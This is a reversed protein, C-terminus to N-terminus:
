IRNYLFYMKYYWKNYDGDNYLNHDLNHKNKAVLCRFSLNINKFFYDIIDKESSALAYGTEIIRVDLSTYMPKESDNSVEIAKLKPIAFESLKLLLELAKTPNTESVKDFLHQIKGINNQILETYAERLESTVKNPTGSKRGGYKMRTDNM